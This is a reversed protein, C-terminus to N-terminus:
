QGTLSLQESQTISNSKVTVTLTYNGAPTGNPNAQQGSGNLSLVILVVYRV